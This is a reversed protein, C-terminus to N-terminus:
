VSAALVYCAAARPPSQYDTLEADSEPSYGEEAVQRRREALVDM